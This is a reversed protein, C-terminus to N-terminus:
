ITPQPNLPEFTVPDYYIRDYIEFPQGIAQFAGTTAFDWKDYYSVYSGKEDRGKSIVFTGMTLNEGYARDPDRLLRDDSLRSRSMRGIFDEETESVLNKIFSARESGASNNQRYTPLIGSLTDFDFKYYYTDRVSHQPKFESIQFTAHTQPLGLYMRWADWSAKFEKVMAPASIALDPPLGGRLLNNLEAEYGALRESNLDKVTGAAGNVAVEIIEAVNATPVAFTPDIGRALAESIGAKYARKQESTVGDRALEIAARHRERYRGQFNANEPALSGTLVASAAVGAIKRLTHRKAADPLDEEPPRDHGGQKFMKM